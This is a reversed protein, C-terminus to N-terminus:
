KQPKADFESALYEPVIQLSCRCNISNGASARVDRPGNMPEKGGGAMPVMFDEDDYVYVGDMVYHTDRVRSDEATLWIKILRDSGEPRNDIAQKLFLQDTMSAARNIETRAIREASYMAGGGRDGLIPALEKAVEFPTKAGLVGRQIAGKVKKSLEDSLGKILETSLSQVVSIMENSIVPTLNGFQGGQKLLNFRTISNEISIDIATGVGSGMAKQANKTFDAIYEDIVSNLRELQNAQFTESDISKITNKINFSMKKLLTLVERTTQEERSDLQRLVNNQIKRLKAALANLEKKTFPM